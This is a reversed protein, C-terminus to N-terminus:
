RIHQQQRHTRDVDQNQISYTSVRYQKGDPGIYYQNFPSKEKPDTRKPSNAHEISFCRNPGGKGASWTDWGHAKFARAFEHIGDFDFLMDRPGISPIENWGWDDMEQIMKGRFPSDIPDVFQVAKDKTNIMADYLKAGTCLCKEWPDVTPPDDAATSVDYREQRPQHSSRASLDYSAPNPSTNAHRSAVPRSSYFLLFLLGLKMTLTCTSTITAPSCYLNKQNLVSDM